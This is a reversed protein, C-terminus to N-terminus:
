WQAQGLKKGIRRGLPLTTFKIDHLLPTHLSEL